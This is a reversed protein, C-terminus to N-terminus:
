EGRAGQGEDRVEAEEAEKTFTIVRVQRDEALVVRGDRLIMADYAFGHEPAITATETWKDAPSDREFLRVGTEKETVVMRNGSMMVTQVFGLDTKPPLMPIFQLQKPDDIPFKPRYVVGFARDTYAIAGGGMTVSDCYSGVPLHDVRRPRLPDSVDIAWVGSFQSDTVLVTERDYFLLDRAYVVFPFRGVLRPAHGMDRWEWLILGAGGCAVALLKDQRALATPIGEGEWEYIVELDDGALQAMRLRVDRGALIVRAEPMELVDLTLLDPRHRVAEAGPEASPDFWAVGSLAMPVFVRGHAETVYLPTAPMPFRTQERDGAVVEAPMAGMAAAALLGGM